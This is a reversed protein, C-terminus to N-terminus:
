VLTTTAAWTMAALGLAASLVSVRGGDELGSPLRFFATAFIVLPFRTTKKSLFLRRHLKM